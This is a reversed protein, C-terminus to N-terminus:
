NLSFILHYNDALRM